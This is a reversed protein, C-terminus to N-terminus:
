QLARIGEIQTKFQPYMNYIETVAQQFDVVNVDYITSGAAEVARRSENQFDNMAKRQWLAAERAADRVAQQQVASLKNFSTKSSILLAPPAMHGDLALHKAVEYHGSTYYSVFDNEAGDIVGTQLGQFVEGYAMPTAVAGLLGVMKIAVESPQVRIKLGKLDSLKKIPVKTTYFNRSGAEWFELGVMNSKDLAAISTKGIDGDLVKYKHEFNAFIYPLTYLAMADVTSAIASTNIRAFDLTGAQVQDITESENGLQADPYVEIEVTGGTKEKVLAAFKVMGETVPNGAPQNEALKFSFKQAATESQQKGCGTLVIGGILLALLLFAYKKM